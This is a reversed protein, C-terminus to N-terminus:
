THDDYPQDLMALDILDKPRGSARKNVRLQERGIVSISLGAIVSRVRTAWAETFDVGDISTLVDIRRPPLGIQYVFDKSTLDDITLDRVPAGFRALARLVRQANEPTPRVWLDIDGTSRPRGHVAMAYAGVLLFEVAAAGFESLIDKFDPNV